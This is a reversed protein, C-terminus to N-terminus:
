ARRHDNEVGGLDDVKQEITGRGPLADGPPNGGLLRQQGRVQEVRFRPLDQPPERQCALDRRLTGRAGQAIVSEQRYDAIGV